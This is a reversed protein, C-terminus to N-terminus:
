RARRRVILLVIGLACALWIFGLIVMFAAAIQQESEGLLPQMDYPPRYPARRLEFLGYFLLSIMLMAVSLAMIATRYQRRSTLAYDLIPGQQSM